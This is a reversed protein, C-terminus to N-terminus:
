PLSSVSERSCEAQTCEFLELFGSFQQFYYSCSADLLLIQLFFYLYGTQSNSLLIGLQFTLFIEEYLPQCKLQIEFGLFSKYM